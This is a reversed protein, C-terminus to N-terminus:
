FNTTEFSGLSLFLSYYWFCNCSFFLLNFLLVIVCLPPSTFHLLSLVLLEVSRCHSGCLRQCKSILFGRPCFVWVSFLSGVTWGVLRGVAWGTALLVRIWRSFLLECFTAQALQYLFTCTYQPSLSVLCFLRFSMFKVKWQNLRHFSIGMQCSGTTPCRTPTRSLNRSVFCVFSFFCCSLLYSVLFRNAFPPPFLPM